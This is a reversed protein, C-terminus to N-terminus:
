VVDISGEAGGEDCFFQVAGQFFGLKIQITGVGILLTPDVQSVDGAETSRVLGLQLAPHPLVMELSWLSFSLTLTSGQEDVEGIGAVVQVAVQFV